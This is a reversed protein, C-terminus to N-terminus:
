VTALTARASDFHALQRDMRALGSRIREAIADLDAAVSPAGHVRLWDADARAALEASAYRSRLAALEACLAAPFSGAFGPGGYVKSRPPTSVPEEGERGCDELCPDCLRYVTDCNAALVGAVDRADDADLPLGCDDCFIRNM